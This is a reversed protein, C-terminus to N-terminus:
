ELSSCLFIKSSFCIADTAIPSLAVVPIFGMKPSPSEGLGTREVTTTGTTAEITFTWEASGFENGATILGRIGVGADVEEL